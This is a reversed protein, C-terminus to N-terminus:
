WVGTIATLSIFRLFVVVIIRPWWRRMPLPFIWKAAHNLIAVLIAFNLLMRVSGWHWIIDYRGIASTSIYSSIWLSEILYLLLRCKTRKLLISEMTQLLDHRILFKWSPWTFSIFFYIPITANAIKPVSPSFATINDRVWLEVDVLILILMGGYLLILLHVRDRLLLLILPSDSTVNYRAEIEIWIFAILRLHHGGWKLRKAITAWDLGLLSCNHLLCTRVGNNWIM